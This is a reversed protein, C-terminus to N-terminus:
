YAGFITGRKDSGAVVLASDVGPLPQSVVQILSAEWKGATDSVDLKRERVLQDIVASRGITGVLIARQGLGALQHTLAPEIQSVRGIDRQLDKAVRVVGPWDNTDVFISAAEGKDFLCFGGETSQESVFTNTTLALAGNGFFLALALGGVLARASTIMGLQM